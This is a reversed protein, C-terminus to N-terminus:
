LNRDVVPSAWGVRHPPVDSSYVNFRHEWRVRGTNTDVCVVREQRTAGEGVPTQLYLHDGLIVPTSRGGLPVKWALGEGAPSWKTPLGHEPSRGDREPGRWDTWDASARHPIMATVLIALVCRAPTM